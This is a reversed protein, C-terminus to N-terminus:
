HMRQLNLYHLIWWLQVDVTDTAAAWNKVRSRGYVAWEPFDDAREAMTTDNTGSIAFTDLRVSKLWRTPDPGLDVYVAINMSDNRSTYKGFLAAIDFGAITYYASTDAKGGAVAVSDQVKLPKTQGQPIAFPSQAWTPVAGLLVLAVACRLAM